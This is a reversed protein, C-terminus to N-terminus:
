RPDGPLWLRARLAPDLSAGPVPAVVAPVDFSEDAVPADTDRHPLYRSGLACVGSSACRACLYVVTRLRVCVPM